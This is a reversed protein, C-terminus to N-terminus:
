VLSQIGPEVVAHIHDTMPCFAYLNVDTEKKFVALTNLLYYYFDASEAFVVQKKYGRQVVHHPYNPIVVRGLRPM